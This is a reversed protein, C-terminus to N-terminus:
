AKVISVIIWNNADPNWLAEVYDTGSASATFSPFTTNFLFNGAGTAFTVAHGAERLQFTIRQMETGNTPGNITLDGDVNIDVNTVLRADLIIPSDLHSRDFVLFAIAKDMTVTGTFTGGSLPMKLADNGDLKNIGQLITDTAAVTGSGSVFGTLLKGTVAADTFSSILLRLAINGDLKDVGQLITDTAAVTGAGSVFGTLLAGTVSSAILSTVGANTIAVAGSLAVDAALNSANGVFVHASTLPTTTPTDVTLLPAAVLKGTTDYIVSNAVQTSM